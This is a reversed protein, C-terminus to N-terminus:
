APCKTRMASERAAPKLQHKAPPPTRAKPPCFTIISGRQPKARRGMPATRDKASFDNHRRQIPYALFGDDVVVPLNGVVRQPAVPLEGDAVGAAAVQQDLAVVQQSELSQQQRPAARNFRSFTTNL